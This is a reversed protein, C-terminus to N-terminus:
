TPLVQWSTLSTLTLPVDRLGCVTSPFDKPKPKLLSWAKLVTRLFESTRRAAPGGIKPHFLVQWGLGLRCFKGLFYRTMAHCPHSELNSLFRHAFIVRFMAVMSALHVLGLGELHIPACFDRLRTWHRRGAWVFNALEGQLRKVLAPPPPLVQFTYWLRPALFQNAVLVRGRLSL